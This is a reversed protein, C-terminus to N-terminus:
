LGSRLCIEGTPSLNGGAPELTVAFVAKDRAASPIQDIVEGSGNYPNFTRGPIPNNGVIFWLQYEKGPPAPAIQKVILMARGSPEYVLEGRAAAAEGSGQLQKLRAGPTKLIQLFEDLRTADRSIWDNDKELAENLRHLSRNQQWLVVIWIILVLFLFAAAIAGVRGLATWGARRSQPFEVVRSQRSEQNRPESRVASMIRDRVHASPEVPPVSLALAAATSEWDALERRCEACQLLHENLAREDAADLASVARAPLM